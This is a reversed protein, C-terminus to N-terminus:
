ASSASSLCPGLSGGPAGHPRGIYSGVGILNPFLATQRSGVPPAAAVRVRSPQARSLEVSWAFEEGSSKRKAGSNLGQHKVVQALVLVEEFVRQMM